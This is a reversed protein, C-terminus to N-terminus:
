RALFILIAVLPMFIASNSGNEAITCFMKLPDTVSVTAVDNDSLTRILIMQEMVSTASPSKKAATNVKM